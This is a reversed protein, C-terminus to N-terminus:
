NGGVLSLAIDSYFALFQRIRAGASPGGPKTLIYYSERPAKLQHRLSSVGAPPVSVANPRDSYFVHFADPAESSGRVFEGAFYRILGKQYCFGGQELRHRWWAKNERTVHLDHGESDSPGSSISALFLGGPALHRRLNELLGALKEKPIHELIEWATVVDFRLPSADDSTHLTFPETVDCTFLNDPITAWSARRTRRSLDSGELGVAVHGDRLCEEVFGGGACGLDLITLSRSHFLAYLKRNFRPNTSSNLATGLPHLHDLSDEALTKSSDLVIKM